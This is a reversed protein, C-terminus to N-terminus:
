DWSIFANSDPHVYNPPTECMKDTKDLDQRYKDTLADRESHTQAMLVSRAQEETLGHYRVYMAIEKEITSGTLPDYKTTM